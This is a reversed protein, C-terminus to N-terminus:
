ENGIQVVALFAKISGQVALAAAALAADRSTRSKPYRQRSKRLEEESSAFTLSIFEQAKNEFGALAVHNKIQKTM